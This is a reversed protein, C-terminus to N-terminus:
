GAGGTSRSPGDYDLLAMQMRHFWGRLRSLDEGQQRNDPSLLDINIDGAARCPCPFRRDRICM